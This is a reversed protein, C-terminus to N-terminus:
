LTKRLLINHVHQQYFRLLSPKPVVSDHWSCFLHCKISSSVNRLMIYCIFTMIVIYCFSHIIPFMLTCIFPMIGIYWFSCLIPFKLPQTLILAELIIKKCFSLRILQVARKILLQEEKDQSFLRPIGFKQTSWLLNRKKTSLCYSM